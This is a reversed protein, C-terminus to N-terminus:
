GRRARRWGLLGLLGTAFLALSSPEPVPNPNSGVGSLPAVDDIGFFNPDTEYIVKDPHTIDGSISYDIFTVENSGAILAHGHGDVAGQDFNPGFNVSQSYVGTTPNYTGIFGDGFFTILTTFPDYIMGHVATDATGLRTTVGTSLNITGFDGCCNPGGDDYFTQGTHPDFAVQTVGNDGGSISTETAPGGFGTATLPATELPGGFNSTYVKTGSPDLALHYSQDPLPEDAVFSGNTNIMHIVDAGQGGVLLHGNADFIIGDAGNLAAIGTSPGMTLTQTTQDYSYPDSYVNEGGTYHTFYLTGSFIQDARASGATIGAAIGLGAGLAIAMRLTKMIIERVTTANWLLLKRASYHKGEYEIAQFLGGALAEVGKYSRGVGDRERAGPDGSPSPASERM